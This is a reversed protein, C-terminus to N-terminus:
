RIPISDVNSIIEGLPHAIDELFEEEGQSNTGDLEHEFSGYLIISAQELLRLAEQKEKATITMVM